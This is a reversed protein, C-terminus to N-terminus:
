PKTGHPTAATPSIAEAGLAPRMDLPWGPGRLQIRAVKPGRIWLTVAEGAPLGAVRHSTSPRVIGVRGPRWRVLRGDEMEEVYGGRIIVRLAYAPHTHFCGPDDAAVFRHLAVTWGWRKFLTTVWMTPRGDLSGIWESWWAIM